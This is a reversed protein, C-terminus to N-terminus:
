NIHDGMKKSFIMNLMLAIVRYPPHLSASEYEGTEKQRLQIIAIMMRKACEFIDLDVKNVWEDMMMVHPPPLKCAMAIYATAFSVFAEGGINSIIM